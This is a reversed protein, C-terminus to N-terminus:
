TTLSVQARSYPGNKRLLCLAGPNLRGVVFVYFPRVEHGIRFSRDRPVSPSAYIRCLPEFTIFEVASKPLRVSTYFLHAGSKDSHHM